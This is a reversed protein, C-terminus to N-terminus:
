RSHRSKKPAPHVFEGSLQVSSIAEPLQRACPWATLQKSLNSESFQRALPSHTKSRLRQKGALMSIGHPKKLRSLSHGATRHSHPSPAVGPILNHLSTQAPMAVVIEGIEVDTEIGGGVVVEKAEEVEEEVPVVAPEVVAAAAVVVLAVVVDPSIVVLSGQTAKRLSSCHLRTASQMQFTVDRLHECPEPGM